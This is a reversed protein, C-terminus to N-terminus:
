PHCEAPVPLEYKSWALNIFGGCFTTPIKLHMFQRTGYSDVDDDPARFAVRVLVSAIDCGKFHM